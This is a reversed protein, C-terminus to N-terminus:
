NKGICNTLKELENLHLMNAGDSKATAPNPHTEIFLVM